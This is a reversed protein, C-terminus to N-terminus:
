YDHYTYSHLSANRKLGGKRSYKKLTSFFDVTVFRDEILDEARMNYRFKQRFYRRIKLILRGTLIRDGKEFQSLQPQSIAECLDKQTLDFYRRVAELKTMRGTREKNKRM